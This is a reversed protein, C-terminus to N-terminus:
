VVIFIISIRSTREFLRLCSIVKFFGFLLAFSTIWAKLNLDDNTWVVIHMAIRTSAAALDVLNWYDKAYMEYCSLCQALEYLLLLAALVFDTIEVGLHPEHLLAYASFFVMTICYFFSVAYIYCRSIQWGYAIITRVAKTQFIEDTNLGQLIEMLFLLQLSGPQFEFPIRFYKMRIIETGRTDIRPLIDKFDEATADTSDLCVFLKKTRSKIRGFSPILAQVNSSPTDMVANLFLAVNPNDMQLIKFLSDSMFRLVQDHLRSKQFLYESEALLANIRASDRTACHTLYYLPTKLSRDPFYRVEAEICKKIYAINNSERMSCLHFLNVGSPMTKLERYKGILECATQVEKKLILSTIQKFIM